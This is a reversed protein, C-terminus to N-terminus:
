GLEQQQARIWKIFKDPYDDMDHHIHHSYYRDVRQLVELEVQELVEVLEEVDCSYTEGHEDLAGCRKLYNEARERLEDKRTM